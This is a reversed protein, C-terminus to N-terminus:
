KCCPMPCKGDTCCAPTCCCEEAAYVTAGALLGLAIAWIMLKKM